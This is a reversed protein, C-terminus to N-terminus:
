RAHGGDTFGARAPIIGGVIPVVSIRTLLGRALPSSGLGSTRFAMLFPYVGRSRPHDSNHDNGKRPYRTFGARAPIIGEIDYQENWLARLGRALPSSGVIAGPFQRTSWYVGRSRPHDSGYVINGRKFVTFGARAPIIGWPDHEEGHRIPLGRALPSSGSAARVAVRRSRYVGRSRPHDKTSMFGLRGATTFGARAPIIRVVITHDPVPTLLGRALPSSGEMTLLVMEPRSYVGRSRPHDWHERAQFGRSSTFGARAPIIRIRLRNRRLLIRLGRALPSSGAEARLDRGRSLYGGRSRPHDGCACARFRRSRTFGARAPIIRAVWTWARPSPPLGRALPSSGPAGGIRNTPRGYVGRSRPHDQLAGRPNDPPWTFGARAPIIGRNLGPGAILLPLGRALPSSGVIGSPAIRM